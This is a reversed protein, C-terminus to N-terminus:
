SLKDDIFELSNWLLKLSILTLIKELFILTGLNGRLCSFSLKLVIRTEYNIFITRRSRDFLYLACQPKNWHFLCDHLYCKPAIRCSKLNSLFTFFIFILTYQPIVFFYHSYIIFLFRFLYKENLKNKM